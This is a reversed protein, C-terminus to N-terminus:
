CNKKLFGTPPPFLFFDTYMYTKETTHMLVHHADDTYISIKTFYVSYIFYVRPLDVFYCQCVYFGYLDLIIKM